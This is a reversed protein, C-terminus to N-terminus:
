RGDSESDGRGGTSGCGLDHCKGFTDAATLLGDSSDYLVQVSLAAAALGIVAVAVRRWPVRTNVAGPM